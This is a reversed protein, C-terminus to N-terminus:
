EITAITLIVLLSVHTIGSQVCKRKAIGSESDPLAAQGRVAAAPVL